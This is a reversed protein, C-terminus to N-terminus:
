AGASAVAVVACGGGGGDEDDDANASGGRRSNIHSLSYQQDPSQSQNRSCEGRTTLSFHRSDFLSLRLTLTSSM